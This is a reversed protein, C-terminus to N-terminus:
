KMGLCGRSGKSFAFMGKEVEKNRGYAGSGPATEILWREPVFAYSDHFVEENHHTIGASMGIAYGRPITYTISRKNFEGEYVLDEETAVRATRASVGYSLRLGEQIVAGLYPLSELTTWPPLHRPDLDPIQSQLETTLRSLLHPKTLLHYTIVTMAWSTTETGAGVVAAAEDALRIPTKDSATLESQLLSAFITPHKDENSFNGANLALKTEKIRAPLDIKLTRIFLAISAPLYNVLRCEFPVM